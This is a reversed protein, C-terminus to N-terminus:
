ENEGSKSVFILKLDTRLFATDRTSEGPCRRLGRPIQLDQDAHHPLAPQLAAVPEVQLLLRPEEEDAGQDEQGTEAAEQRHPLRQGPM